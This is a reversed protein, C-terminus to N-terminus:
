KHVVLGEEILHRIIKPEETKLHSRGKTKPRAEFYHTRDKDELDFGYISPTVGSLIFNLITLFGLTPRPPNLDPHAKQGFIKEIIERYSNWFDFDYLKVSSHVNYPDFNGDSMRLVSTDRLDKVFNHNEFQYPHLEKVWPDGPPINDFVHGNVIRLDTRSGVDEEFGATPARNFRVIYEYEDIEKGAKSDILNGSSGVIVVNKPVLLDPSSFRFINKCKKPALEEKTEKKAMNYSIVKQVIQVCIFFGFIYQNVKQRGDASCAYLTPAYRGM